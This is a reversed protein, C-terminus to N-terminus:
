VYEGDPQCKNWFLMKSLGAKAFNTITKKGYLYTTYFFAFAWVRYRNDQFTKACDKCGM